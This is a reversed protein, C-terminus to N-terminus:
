STDCVWGFPVLKDDPAAKGKGKKKGESYKCKGEGQAASRPHLSIQLLIKGWLETGQAAMEM